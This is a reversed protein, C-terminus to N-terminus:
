LGAVALVVSIWVRSGTRQGLFLGLVPVLVIYMATIFGAKGPETYLLGVQQLATAVFLAAGCPVGAKWLDRDLWRAAFGAKEKDMFFTVVLLALVALVSRGVMFTMPGIHEMGVSQAVFACGWIVTGLLLCLSGQIKKNKM